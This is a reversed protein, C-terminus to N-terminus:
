PTAAERPARALSALAREAARVDDRGVPHSSFRARGFLAVLSAAADPEALAGRARARTLLQEPTQAPGRDVGADALVREMAEYCAIVADRPEETSGLAARGARAAEATLDPRPGALEPVEATRRRRRRRVFVVALVALLLVVAAALAIGAWGWGGAHGTPQQPPVQGGAPAGGPVVPRAHRIVDGRNLLLFVIPGVVAALLVLVAVAVALPGGRPQYEEEVEDDPNKRRRRVMSLVLVLLIPAGLAEVVLFPVTVLAGPVHPPAEFVFRARSRAVVGATALLVAAVVVLVPLVSRTHRRARPQEM